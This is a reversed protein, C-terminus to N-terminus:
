DGAVTATVLLLNAAGSESALDLLDKTPDYPPAIKHDGIFCRFFDRYFKGFREYCYHQRLNLSNKNALRVSLAPVVFIGKRTYIFVFSDSSYELMKQCQSQFKRNYPVTPYKSNYRSFKGVKAQALFRKSITTNGVTLQLISELDAGVLPEETHKHLVRVRFNVGHITKANLRKEIEDLLHRTIGLELQATIREERGKLDDHINLVDSVVKEASEAMVAEIDNLIHHEKFM